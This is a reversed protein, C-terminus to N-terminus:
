RPTQCLRGTPDYRDWRAAYGGNVMACNIQQGRADSCWATVRNYSTGDAECTLTQGLALRELASKAITASTTPCPHGPRCSGDSERAAIASLRVRTGDTCRFTDGDTVSRVTCTFIGFGPAPEAFADTATTRGTPWFFVAGFVGVMIVGALAYTIADPERPGPPPSSDRLRAKGGQYPRLRPRRHFRHARVLLVALVVALLAAALLYPQRTEYWGVGALGAGALAIVSLEWALRRVWYPAM